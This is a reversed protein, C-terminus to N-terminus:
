KKKSQKIVQRKLEQDRFSYRVVYVGGALSTFDVNIANLGAKGMGDYLTKIKQGLSSYIEVTLYDAYPLIVNVQLEDTFPNPYPEMISIENTLSSCKQNNTEVDDDQGNPRIVSVCYFSVNSSPAINFRAVFSYSQIGNSGNPLLQQYSEQIVTGDELQAQMIVSDIDVTGLNAINASISLQGNILTASVNTVAADLLPQIVYISKTISDVCGFTTTAILEISYRGTDQYIHHPSPVTSGQTGDGFDWTYTSTLNTLNTFTVDLPPNGYQPYFSFNPVPLAHVDINKRVSDICGISTKVVLNVSYIGTTDFTFVPNQNTDVGLTDFTWKWSHISGNSVTSNDTFQYPTNICAPPTSFDAVPIASVTVDESASSLCGDISLATLTVTYTGAYVYYHAPNEISQTQQDGFNWTWTSDLNANQSFNTFSMIGGLCTPSYAFNPIVSFNVDLTQIISDRCGFNDTVILSVNHFGVVSSDYVHTPNSLGSTNLSDGLDGFNWEYLAVYALSDVTSNDTFITPFDTCANIYTFAATPNDHVTLTVTDSSTCGINTTVFLIVQHLGPTTFLYLPNAITSTDTGDFYWVWSIITDGPPLSSLDTFQIPFGLCVENYGFNVIAGQNVIIDQTYPASPCNSPSYAILSVHFTDASTFTHSPSEISDSFSDGFDWSWGSITDGVGNSTSTFSVMNNECANSPSYLFNATPPNSIHVPISIVDSCNNQAMVTFVVNYTIPVGSSYTHTPSALNSSNADGFDWTYSTVPSQSVTQDTFVVSQGVCTNDIIFAADPSPNISLNYTTDDACGSDSVVLLTIDFNGGDPFAYSPNQVTLSDGNGFTWLWSTIAGASITSADTFSMLTDSCGVPLTFNAVPRASITVNQALTTSCGSNATLTLTVNFTNNSTYLHTPNVVDSTDGDGFDWHRNTITGSSLTSSDYFQTVDGECLNEFTFSVVPAPAIVVSDASTAVNGNADIAELAIHYTGDLNYQVGSPVQDTSVQQNASCSNQPKVAVFKTNSEDAAVILWDSNEKLTTLGNFSSAGPVSYSTLVTPSNNFLDTGIDVVSIVGGVYSSIIATWRGNENVVSIGSPLFLPTPLQTVLTPASQLSNTFDVRFMASLTYCSVFVAPSGCNNAISVGWGSVAGTVQYSNVTPTPNTISPGFDAIILKDDANNMIAVIVNGGVVELDLSRPQNLGPVPIVVAATPASALGSGFTFLTATSNSLSIQIAYWTGGEKHFALGVPSFFSALPFPMDVLAPANSFSNGFDLRVLDNNDRGCLFGYHDPGDIVAVGYSATIVPTATDFKTFLGTNFDGACFDWQYSVASTSNNTITLDQQPCVPQTLTFGATPCQAHVSTVCSLMV